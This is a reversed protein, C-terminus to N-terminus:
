SNRGQDRVRDNQRQDGIGGVDRLATWATANCSGGSTNDFWLVVTGNTAKTSSLLALTGKCSNTSITGYPQDINCVQQFSMAGTQFSFRANVNGAPDLTLNTITGRCTYVAATAPSSGLIPLLAAVLVVLARSKFM